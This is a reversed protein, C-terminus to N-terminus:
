RKRAYWGRIGNQAGHQFRASKLARVLKDMTPCDKGRTVKQLDGLIDIARMFYQKTRPMPEYHSTLITELGGVALFPENHEEIAKEEESSMYYRQGHELEWLAQAYLQQYNLPTETDITGTVEVCLYRRNGTPDTLPQRENTTAIFSAM